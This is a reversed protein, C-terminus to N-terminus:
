SSKKEKLLEYAAQINSFNNTVVKELSKPLNKGALTDPHKSKALSKYVKKIEEFSTSKDVGLIRFAGKLDKKNKLKDARVQQAVDAMKKIM